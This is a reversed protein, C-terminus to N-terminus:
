AKFKKMVEESIGEDSLGKEVLNDFIKNVYKMIEEDSPIRIDKVHLMIQDGILGSENIAMVSVDEDNDKNRVVVAIQNVAYRHGNQNKPVIASWKVYPFTEETDKIYIDEEIIISCIRSWAAGQRGMSICIEKLMQAKPSLISEGAPKVYGRLKETGKLIRRMTEERGLFQFLHEIKGIDAM